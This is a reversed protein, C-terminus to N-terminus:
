ADSQSNRLMNKYIDAAEPYMNLRYKNKALNSLAVNDNPNRISNKEFYKEAENYNKQDYLLTAKSNRLVKSRLIFERAIFLIGLLLVILCIILIIRM